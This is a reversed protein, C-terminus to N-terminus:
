CLDICIAYRCRNYVQHVEAHKKIRYLWHAVAGLAEPRSARGLRPQVARVPLATWLHVRKSSLVRPSLQRRVLPLYIMSLPSLESTGNIGPGAAMLTVQGAGTNVPLTFSWVGSGDADAYGMSRNCGGGNAAPNGVSRLIYVGCGPCSKGSILQGNVSTLVPYDLWGDPGLGSGGADNPTPGDNGLDVALGGNQYAKDPLIRNKTVAAIGAGGNYAVFYPVLYAEEVGSDLKIGELGNGLPSRATNSMVGIETWNTVYAHSSDAVYIGERLNGSIFTYEIGTSAGITTHDAHNVIAVGALQNPIASLGDYSLGILNAQIQNYPAGSLLVGSQGNGSIVNRDIPNSTGGILNHQANSGEILIGNGANPMANVDDNGIEIVGSGSTVPAM